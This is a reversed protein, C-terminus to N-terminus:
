SWLMSSKSITTRGFSLLKRLLMKKERAITVTIREDSLDKRTLLARKVPLALCAHENQFCYLYQSDDIYLSIITDLKQSKMRQAITNFFDVSSPDHFKRERYNVQNRRQMLWEYPNLGDITNSELIDSHEFIDRYINITGFHDNRYRHSSKKKPREGKNIRLLYLSKNRVVAYGKAALSSRLLYFVSYYLKVTAWSYVKRNISRIGECLSLLGKFYVDNADNRLDGVLIRCHEESLTLNEFVERKRMWDDLDKAGVLEECRAQVRYREFSM